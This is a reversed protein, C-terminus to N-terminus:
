KFGEVVEVPQDNLSLPQSMPLNNGKIILEKTKEVNIHLGSSRCWEQLNNTQKFYSDGDSRKLFLGVLAMDDAYKLLSM